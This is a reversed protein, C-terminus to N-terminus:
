DPTTCIQIVLILQLLLPDAADDGQVEWLVKGHHGPDPLLGILHSRLAPSQAAAADRQYLGGERLSGQGLLDFHSQLHPRPSGNIWFSDGISLTVRYVTKKSLSLRDRTVSDLLEQAVPGREAGDDSYLGPPSLKM